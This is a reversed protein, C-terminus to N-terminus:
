NWPPHPYYPPNTPCLVLREVLDNKNNPYHIVLLLIVDHWWVSVYCTTDVFWPLKSMIELFLALDIWMLILPTSYILEYIYIYTDRERMNWRVNWFLDDIVSMWANCPFWLFGCRLAQARAALACPDQGGDFFWRKAGRNQPPPWHYPIEIHCWSLCCNPPNRFHHYGVVM